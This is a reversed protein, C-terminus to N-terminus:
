GGEISIQRRQSKRAESSGHDEAKVNEQKGKYYRMTRRKMRLVNIINNRREITKREEGTRLGKAVM